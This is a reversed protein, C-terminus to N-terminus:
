GTSASGAWPWLRVPRAGILDLPDLYVEGRLWGWHLCAAPSCHSAAAQLRGIPAGRSLRAGVTVTANVPEYTTRTEGHSVTIVGRGALKGAFVVEGALATRVVSGVQGALDVGRHGAGYTSAPPAFGHVVTVPPAIPWVGTGRLDRPAPGPDAPLVASPGPPTRLDPSSPGAVPAIVPLAALVGMLTLVALNMDQAHAQAARDRRPTRRAPSPALGGTATSRFRARVSESGRCADVVSTVAVWGHTSKARRFAM